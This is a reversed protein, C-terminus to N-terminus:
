YLFMLLYSCRIIDDCYDAPCPARGSSETYPPIFCSILLYFLTRAALTHKNPFIFVAARGPTIECLLWRKYYKEMRTRENKPAIFAFSLPLLAIERRVARRAAAAVTAMLPRAHRSKIEIYRWRWKM